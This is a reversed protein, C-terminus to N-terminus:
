LTLGQEVIDITLTPVTVAQHRRVILWSRRIEIASIDHASERPEQSVRVVDTKRLM